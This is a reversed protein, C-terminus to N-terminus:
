RKKKQEKEKEKVAKKGAKYADKLLKELGDSFAEAKKAERRGQPTQSYRGMGM